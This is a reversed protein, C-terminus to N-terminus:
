GTRSGKEQAFLLSFLSPEEGGVSAWTGWIVIRSFVERSFRKPVPTTPAVRCLGVEETAGGYEGALGVSCHSASLWDGGIIRGRDVYWGFLADLSSPRRRTAMGRSCRSTGSPSWRTSGDESSAPNGMGGEVGADCLFETLLILLMCVVLSCSVLRGYLVKLAPFSLTALLPTSQGTIIAHGTGGVGLM